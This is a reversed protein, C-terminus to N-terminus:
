AIARNGELYLTGRSNVRTLPRECRSAARSSPNVSFATSIRMRRALRCSATATPVEGFAGSPYHKRRAYLGMPRVTVFSRRHVWGAFRGRMRAVGSPSEYLSQGSRAQGGGQPAAASGTLRGGGGLRHEVTRLDLEFNRGQGEVHGPSGADGRGDVARDGARDQPEGFPVGDGDSDSVYQALAGRDMPMANAQWIGHIPDGAKGEGADGGALGERIAKRDPLTAGIPVVAMAAHLLLGPEGTGQNQNRALGLRVVVIAVVHDHERIPAIRIRHRDERIELLLAVIVVEVPAGEWLEQHICAVIAECGRQLVSQHPVAHAHTGGVDHVDRPGGVCE